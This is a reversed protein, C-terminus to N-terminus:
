IIANDAAQVISNYSGAGTTGSLFKMWRTGNDLVIGDNLATTKVQLKAALTAGGTGIGVNPSVSDDVVLGTRCKITTAGDWTLVKNKGATCLNSSADEWPPLMQIQSSAVSAYAAGSVGMLVAFSLFLSFPIRKM